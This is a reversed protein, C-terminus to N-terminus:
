SLKTRVSDAPAAARVPRLPRESRRTVKNGVNAGLMSGAKKLLAYPGDGVYMQQDSYAEAYTNSGAQIALIRSGPSRARVLDSIQRCEDESLSYCLLILDYGRKDLLSSAESLRGASDVQFYAELIWKRTQLLLPDRSICLISAVSGM